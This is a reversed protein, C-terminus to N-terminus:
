NLKVSLGSNPRPLGITTEIGKCDRLDKLLNKPDLTKGIFAESEPNPNESYRARYIMISLGESLARISVARMYFRNFEGEAFTQAATVPVRRQQGNKDAEHTNFCDNSVLDEALSDDNGKRLHDVMIKLYCDRGSEHFRKSTYCTDSRVDSNFEEVMLERITEDLSLYNLGM